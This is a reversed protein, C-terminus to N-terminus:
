KASRAFEKNLKRRVHNHEVVYATWLLTYGNRIALVVVYDENELWIHLRDEGKKKSIWCKVKHHNEITPKPWAIRECRRMDPIRSAETEGKTILHWFTAEKGESIPHRKMALRQGNYLPPNSVLDRKFIEYIAECYDNWNGSYDSIPVMDPLWADPM